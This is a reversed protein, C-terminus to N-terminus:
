IYHFIKEVLWLHKLEGTGSQGSEGGGLVDGLQDLRVRFIERILRVLAGINLEGLVTALIVKQHVITGGVNVRVGHLGLRDRLEMDTAAPHPRADSDGIDSDSAVPLAALEIVLGVRAVAIIRAGRNFRREAADPTRIELEHGAPRGAILLLNM